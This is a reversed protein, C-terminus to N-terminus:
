ARAAIDEATIVYVSAATDFYRKEKRSASTIEIKM